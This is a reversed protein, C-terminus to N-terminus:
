HFDALIVDKPFSRGSGTFYNLHGDNNDFWSAYEDDIDELKLKRLKIQKAM